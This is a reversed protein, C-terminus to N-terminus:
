QWITAYFHTHHWWSQTKHKAHNIITISYSCNYANSQADTRNLVM